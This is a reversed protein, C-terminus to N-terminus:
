SMIAFCAVCDVCSTQVGKVVADGCSTQVVKVVADGCSTHVGKVVHASTQATGILSYIDRKKSTKKNYFRGTESLLM